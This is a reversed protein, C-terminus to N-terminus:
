WPCDTWLMNQKVINQKTKNQQAASHELATAVGNWFLHVTWVLGCKQDLM